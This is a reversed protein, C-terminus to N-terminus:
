KFLKLDVYNGMAPYGAVPHLHDGSDYAPLLQDPKAPDHAFADFDIIADFRGPTRIWANIAQRDAENSADPHYYTNGMYPTITAGIVRLGHTHAQDILQRYSQEMRTVLAAHGEPSVPADRTLTGLDNVGEFVVLYKVGPQSFVDRNLRALANPGLGDLLLRNGGIGFNLVSLPMGAAQLRAMLADPWRLNTNPKVGYGDTISDGVIAIAGLTQTGEVELGAIEYWRDATKPTTLDADSVHNGHVFYSTARSGPHSTLVQPADPQYISIALDDLGKVPMDVPDSVYDAGAPITVAAQGEFTVAHVTAPDVAAGANTKPRAVSVAAIQLPQTGFANSLRIRIRDGGSTVRVIQRLTADTLDEAPLTNNGEAIMTSTAWAAVWQKAPAPKATAVPHARARAMGEMPTAFSLVALACLAAASSFRIPM